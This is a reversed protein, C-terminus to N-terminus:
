YASAEVESRFRRLYDIRRADVQGTQVAARVACGPESEHRCDRFKCKGQLARLEVFGDEIQAVSLHHLGFEQLGPSDILWSQTDLWYLRSNTTTHTGTGLASSIEGIRAAADPVLANVLTSKGMGSQGILVSCRGALLTTPLAWRKPTGM